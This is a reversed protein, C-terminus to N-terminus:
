AQVEADAQKNRPRYFKRDRGALHGEDGNAQTVAGFRIDAHIITPWDMVVAGHAFCRGVKYLVVDGPQPVEVLDSHAEVHTMFREEARHLMWDAPYDDFAFPPVLQLAEVYIGYLLMACDVGVHKIRAKHHYPTRLWTIAEAVVPCLEPNCVDASKM